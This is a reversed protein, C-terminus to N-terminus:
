REGDEEENEEEEYRDMGDDGEEVFRCRFGKDYLARMVSAQYLGGFRSIGSFSPTRVFSPLITVDM